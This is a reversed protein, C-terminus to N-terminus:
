STIPSALYNRRIFTEFDSPGQNKGNLTYVSKKDSLSSFSLDQIYKTKGSQTPSVIVSTM